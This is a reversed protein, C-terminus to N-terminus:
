EEGFTHKLRSWTTPQTGVAFCQTLCPNCGANTGGSSKGGFSVWGCDLPYNLNFQNGACGSVAFQGNPNKIISMLTPTYLSVIMVGGVRLEVGRTCNALTWTLTNGSRSKPWTASPFGLDSCKVFSSPDIYAGTYTGGVNNFDYWLGFQMGSIGNEVQPIGVLYVWYAAGGGPPITPGTTVIGACTTPAAACAKSLDPGIAQVHLGIAPHQGQAAAHGVALGLAAAVTLIIGLYKM